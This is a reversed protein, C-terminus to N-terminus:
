ERARILFTIEEGSEHSELLRHGTETCFHPIDIRSMPDTARLRLVKGPTLHALRKQARLVPLPCRLDRADLDEDWM